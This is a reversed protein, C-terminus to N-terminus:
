KLLKDLDADTPECEKVEEMLKDVGKANAEEPTDYKERISEFMCDCQKEALNDLEDLNVAGMNEAGLTSKFSSVYSKECSSVFAEKEADWASESSCSALVLGAALTLYITYKM